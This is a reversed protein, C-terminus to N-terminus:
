QRVEAKYLRELYAIQWAESGFEPQAKRKGRLVEFLVVGAIAGLMIAMAVIFLRIM